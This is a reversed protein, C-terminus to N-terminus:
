QDSACLEAACRHGMAPDCSIPNRDGEFHIEASVPGDSVDDYWDPNNAFNVLPAGAPVSKSNGKGGLVILRGDLDTRLDGLFVGTGKFHGSLEVHSGKGHIDQAGADINLEGAPTGPNRSSPGGPPFTEASAKTNALHVTWVITATDATIESVDILRGSDDYEYEYVRFRAGQRKLRGVSDRYPGQPLPVLGPSEPGTFTDKPSNGM